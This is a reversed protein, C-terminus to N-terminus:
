KRCIAEIWNPILALAWLTNANNLGIAIFSIIAIGSLGIIARPIICDKELYDNPKKM